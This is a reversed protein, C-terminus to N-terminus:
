RKRPDPPDKRYFRFLEKRTGTGKIGQGALFSLCIYEAKNQYSLLDAVRPGFEDDFKNIERERKEEFDEFILPISDMNETRFILASNRDIFDLNSKWLYNVLSDSRSDTTLTSDPKISINLDKDPALVALYSFKEGQSYIKAVRPSNIPATSTLSTPYLEAVPNETILELVYITDTRGNPDLNIQVEEM